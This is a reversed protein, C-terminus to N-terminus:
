VLSYTPRLDSAPQVDSFRGHGVVGVSKPFRDVLAERSAEVPREDLLVVVVTWPNAIAHLNETEAAPGPRPRDDAPQDRRPGAELRKVLDELHVCAAAAAVKFRAQKPGTDLVAAALSAPDRLPQ